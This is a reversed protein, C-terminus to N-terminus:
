RNGEMLKYRTNLTQLIGDTISIVKSTRIPTGDSWRGKSDNIIDGIMCLGVQKYNHLEADYDNM